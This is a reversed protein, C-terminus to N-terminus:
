QSLYLYAIYATYGALMVGGEPRSLRSGTRMFVALLVATALM